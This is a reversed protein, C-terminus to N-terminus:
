RSRVLVTGAARDHLGRGERDVFFVPVVAVLLTTRIAARSFGVPQGDLRRVAIGVVRQGFSHGTLATLVIREVVFTILVAATYGQGPPRTFGLAVLDCAVGDLLFALLRRGYAVSEGYAEAAM